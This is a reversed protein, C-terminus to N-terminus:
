YLTYSTRNGSVVTEQFSNKHGFKLPPRRLCIRGYLWIIINGVQNRLLQLKTEVAKMSGASKDLEERAQLIQGDKRTNERELM